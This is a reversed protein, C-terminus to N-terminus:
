VVNSIPSHHRWPRALTALGKTMMQTFLPVQHAPKERTAPNPPPAASSGSCSTVWSGTCTGQVGGRSLSVATSIAAATVALWLLVAGGHLRLHRRKQRMHLCGRVRCRYWRKHLLRRIPRRSRAGIEEGAPMEEGSALRTFTGLLAALQPDSGALGHGISNLSLQEWVNLSM